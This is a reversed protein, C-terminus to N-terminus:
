GEGKIALIEKKFNKNVKIIKLQKHETCYFTNM